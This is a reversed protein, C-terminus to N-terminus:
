KRGLLSGLVRGVAMGWTEPIELAGVEPHSRKRQDELQQQSVIAYRYIEGPTPRADQWSRKKSPLEDVLVKWLAVDPPPKGSSRWRLLVLGHQDTWEPPLTWRVTLKQGELSLELNQVRPPCPLALAAQASELALALEEGDSFRDRPLTALARGLLRATEPSLDTLPIAGNGPSIEPVKKGTLLYLLLAGLSYIDSRVDIPARGSEVEPATFAFDSLPVVLDEPQVAGVDDMAQFGACSGIWIRDHDNPDVLIDEPRLEYALFGKRHLESLFDAIKRALTLARREPFPGQETVLADLPKGYLAAAVLVPETKRYQEAEPFQFEDQTNEVYFLDVPEPLANHTITLMEAEHLLRRRVNDVYERNGLLRQNYRCVMLLAKHDSFEERANRALYAARLRTTQFPSLVEWQSAYEGEEGVAKLITAAELKM